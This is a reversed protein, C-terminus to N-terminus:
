LVRYLPAKLLLHLMATAHRCFYKARYRYLQRKIMVDSRAFCMKAFSIPLLYHRRVFFILYIYYNASIIDFCISTSQRTTNSELFIHAIFFTFNDKLQNTSLLNSHNIPFKKSAQQIGMGAMKFTQYEMEMGQIKMVIVPAGTPM